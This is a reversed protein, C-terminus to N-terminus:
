EIVEMERYYYDNDYRYQAKNMRECYEKAKEEEKYIDIITKNGYSNAKWVVYVKM